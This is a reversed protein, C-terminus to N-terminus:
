TWKYEAGNSSSHNNPEHRHPDNNDSSGSLNNSLHSHPDTGPAPGHPLGSHGHSYCKKTSHGCMAKAMASKTGNAGLIDINSCAYLQWHAANLQCLDVALRLSVYVAGSAM